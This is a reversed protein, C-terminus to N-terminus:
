TVNLKHYQFYHKIHNIAISANQANIATVLRKTRLLDYRRHGEFALELRREVLVSDRFAAQSLANLDPIGARRRVRNIANYAETNGAGHENLAEAYMLLVDAFRILPIIIVEMM